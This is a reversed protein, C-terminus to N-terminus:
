RKRSFSKSNKSGFANKLLSSGKNRHKIGGAGGGGAAGGAGGAGADGSTCLSGILLLVIIIIIIIFIIGGCRGNNQNDNQNDNQVGAEYSEHAISSIPPNQAAEAAATLNMVASEHPHNPSQDGAHDGAHDGAQDGSHRQDNNKNSPPAYNPNYPPQQNLTLLLADRANGCRQICTTQELGPSQNTICSNVSIKYADDISGTALYADKFYQPKSLIVPLRFKLGPHERGSLGLQQIMAIQCKQGAPSNEIPTINTDVFEAATNFCLNNFDSFNTLQPGPFSHQQKVGYRLQALKYADVNDLNLPM